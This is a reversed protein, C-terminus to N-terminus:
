GGNRKVKRYEWPPLPKDEVWLGLGSSRARQEATSYENRDELSQEKEFKKYHWAMGNRVQALNADIGNVLVKGVQRNYRDMKEYEITVTKSFVLQSLHLRSAKGFAQSKEPADVGQLRIKHQQKNADLVKITDGDAIGIVTAQYRSTEAFAFSPVLAILAVAFFKKNM